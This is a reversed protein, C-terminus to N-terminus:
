MALLQRVQSEVIKRSYKAKVLNAQAEVVSLQATTQELMTALGLEYQRTVLEYSKRASELTKEQLVIVKNYNDLNSYYTLLTSLLEQEKADLDVKASILSLQNKQVTQKKRFGEFLGISASINWSGYGDTTKIGTWDKLYSYGASLAPLYSEKAIKLNIQESKLSKQLAQYEYNNKFILEMAESIPPVNIQEIDIEEIEFDQDPTIGMLIALSRKENTLELERSILKNEIEGKQVEAKLVDSETKTGLNYMTRIMDLNDDAAILNERYVSLLGQSTLINYYATEIETRIQAVLDERNLKAIENKNHALKIDSFLGPSYINQNISLGTSLKSNGDSGSESASAKASPYLNAYAEKTGLATQQVSLENKTLSKNNRIAIQICQDLTLKETAFVASTILILLGIINFYKM